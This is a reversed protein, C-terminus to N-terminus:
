FCIFFCTSALVCLFRFGYANSTPIHFPVAVTSFTQCSRLFSFMSNSLHGPLEVGQHIGLLISFLYEFLFKYMAAAM